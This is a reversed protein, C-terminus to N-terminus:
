FGTTPRVPEAVPPPACDLQDNCFNLTPNDDTVSGVQHFKLSQKAHIVTAVRFNDRANLVVSAVHWRPVGM